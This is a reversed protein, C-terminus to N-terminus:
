PLFDSKRCESIIQQRVQDACLSILENQIEPSTYRANDKGHQLHNALLPDTQAHSQLVAMFNSREETHGRFPINQKGLLLVVQIIKALIHRNHQVTEKATSSLKCIISEKKGNLIDVFNDAMVINNKHVEDVCHRALVTSINKWDNFPTSSLTRSKGNSFILCPACMVSDMSVSYVLWHHSKLWNENFHRLKGGIFRSPFKYKHADNWPKSLLSLKDNEDLDALRGSVTFVDRYPPDCLVTSM